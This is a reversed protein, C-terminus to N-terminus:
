AHDLPVKLEGAKFERRTETGCKECRFTATSLDGVAHDLLILRM